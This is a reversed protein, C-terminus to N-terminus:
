QMYSAGVSTRYCDICHLLLAALVPLYTPPDDMGKGEGRGGEKRKMEERVGKGRAKKERGGGEKREM